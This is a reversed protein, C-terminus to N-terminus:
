RKTTLTDLFLLKGLSQEYRIPDRALRARSQEAMVDTDCEWEGRSMAKLGAAAVTEPQEKTGEVHDSMKTQVSGVYLNTVSIGRPALEARAIGGLFHAAVKSPSYGGMFATPAIAAVSLVNVFSGGGNAEIVPYFARIMALPGFYNVEMERRAADPDTAEILRDRAHLGANNIVVTVDTCAAAAAAVQAPDTVDLEIPVAGSAALEPSVAGLDRVGAYVKAAGRALAVTAFALGIGGNAGTVLITAGEVPAGKLTSM